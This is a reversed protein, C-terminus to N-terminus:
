ETIEIMECGHQAFKDALHKGKVFIVYKQSADYNFTKFYYYKDQYGYKLNCKDIEDKIFENESIIMFEQQGSDSIYNLAGVNFQPMGFQYFKVLTATNSRYVAPYEKAIEDIYDLDSVYNIIEKTRKVVHDDRSNRVTFFVNNFNVFSCIFVLICLAYVNKKTHFAAIFLIVIMVILSCIGAQFLASTLDPFAANTNNNKINLFGTLSLFYRANTHPINNLAPGVKFTFLLLTIVFTALTAIKAKINILKTETLAYLALFCIPSVAGITYRGYIMRDARNVVLGTMLEYAHPFFFLAGMSFTGLVCLLTFVSLIFKTNDFKKSKLTLFIIIVAAFVGIILLGMSSAFLNFLWGICLKLEIIFGEPTFIQKFTEFDFNELSAHNTGYQGYVGNKVYRSVFKDIILLVINTPIYIYYNVLSKKCYIHYIAVTLVVAILLVIGRSHAMYAYVSIFALFFTLYNKKGHQASPLDSLKLILLLLVWPLLILMMDARSYLSYLWLSSISGSSVALLIAKKRSATKLHKRCIYFAIVPIFSIFLMHLAMIAKYMWFPHSKFLIYIPLYLLSQGYKYYFGGMSQVCISWDDGALFATNAITGVEDIVLPISLHIGYFVSAIAFVFYMFLMIRKDSIKHLKM